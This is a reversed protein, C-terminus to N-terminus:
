EVQQIGVSEDVLSLYGSAAPLAEPCVMSDNNDAIVTSTYSSVLFLTLRFSLSMGVSHQEFGYYIFFIAEFRGRM